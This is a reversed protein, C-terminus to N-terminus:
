PACKEGFSVLSGYASDALLIAPPVDDQEAREIMQLALEPKTKVEM